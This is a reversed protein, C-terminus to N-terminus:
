FPVDTKEDSIFDDNLTKDLENQPKLEPPTEYKPQQNNNPNENKTLVKTFNAEVISFRKKEGNSEYEKNLQKGEVLCQTGKTLKIIESEAYKSFKQINHWTTNNIWEGSNKDKYSTQTALTFNIVSNGNDFTKIEADKGINGILTIKNYM